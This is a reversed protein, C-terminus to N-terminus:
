ARTYHVHEWSEPISDELTRVYALPRRVVDWCLRTAAKGLERPRGHVAM